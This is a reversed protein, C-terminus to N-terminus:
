SILVMVEKMRKTSQKRNTLHHPVVLPEIMKVLQQLDQVLALDFALSGKASTRLQFQAHLMAPHTNLGSSLQDQMASWLITSPFTNCVCKSKIVDIIETTFQFM